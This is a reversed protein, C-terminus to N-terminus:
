TFGDYKDAEAGIRTSAVALAVVVLATIPRM